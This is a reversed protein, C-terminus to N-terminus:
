WVSAGAPVDRTSIVYVGGAFLEPDVATTLAGDGCITSGPAAGVREIGVPAFPDFDFDFALDFLLDFPLPFGFDEGVGM